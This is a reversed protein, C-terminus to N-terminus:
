EDAGEKPHWISHVIKAACEHAVCTKIHDAFADKHVRSWNSLDHALRAQCVTPHLLVVTTLNLDDSITEVDSHFLSALYSAPLRVHDDIVGRLRVIERSAYRLKEELRKIREKPDENM